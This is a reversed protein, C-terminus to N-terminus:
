LPVYAFVVIHLAAYGVICASIVKVGKTPLPDTLSWWKMRARPCVCKFYVSRLLLTVVWVVGRGCVYCFSLSIVTGKSLTRNSDVFSAGSPGPRCPAKWFRGNSGPLRLLHLWLQSM